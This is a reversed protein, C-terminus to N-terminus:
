NGVPEVAKIELPGHGANCAGCTQFTICSENGFMHCFDPVTVNGFGLASLDGAILQQLLAVTLTGPPLLVGAANFFNEVSGFNPCPAGILACIGGPLLLAIEADLAAVLADFEAPIHNVAQICADGNAIAEAEAAAQAAALNAYVGLIAGSAGDLVLYETIYPPASNGGMESFIFPTNDDSGNPDDPCDGGDNSIIPAEAECMPPAICASADVTVCYVESKDVCFEIGSAVLDIMQDGIVGTPDTITLIQNDIFDCIQTENFGFFQNLLDLFPALEVPTVGPCYGLDGICTTGALPIDVCLTNCLLNDLFSTVADLTGQTYALQYICVTEGDALASLDLTTSGAATVAVIDGNADVAIYNTVVMADIVGDGDSDFGGSAPGFLTNADVPIAADNCVETPADPLAEGALATCAGAVPPCTCTLTGSLDGSCPGADIASFDYALTSADACGPGLEATECADAFTIAGDGDIDFFAGAGDSAFGGAMPNCGDIVDEIVEFIPNIVVDFQLKPCGETNADSLYAGFTGDGDTDYDYSFPVVFFSVTIPACTANLFQGAAFNLDGCGGGPGAGGDSATGIYAIDPNGTAGGDIDAPIVTIGGPAMGPVGAPAYIYLDLDLSPGVGTGGGFDILNPSISCGENITFDIADGNCVDTPGTYNYVSACGSVPCDCTLTGSLDGSCTGVDLASFDYNLVAGNTCDATPSLQDTMCADAFTIAGDGDVDYFGGMGDAAFAGVIPDCGDTIDEIIEFIPDITVKVFDVPCDPLVTFNESDIPILGVSIEIPACTTNLFAFDLTFDTCGTTTGFIGQLNPDTADILDQTTFTTGAPACIPFGSVPDFYFVVGWGSNSLDSSVMCTPGFTIPLPAGNCSQTVSFDSVADCPPTGLEIIDPCIEAIFATGPACNNETFNYCVTYDTGVTLGSADASYGGAPQSVTVGLATVNTCTAAEFIDVTQTICSPDGALLFAPFAAADTGATYNTCVTHTAGPALTIPIGSDLVGDGDTDEAYTQCGSGDGGNFSATTGPGPYTGADPYYTNGCDMSIGGMLDACNDACPVPCIPIAVSLNTGDVCSFTADDRVNVVVNGAATPGTVTVMICVNGDTAGAVANATVVGGVEVDYAGGGDTVDFCVEFEADDGNCVAATNLTVNTIVCDTAATINYMWDTCENDFATIGFKPANNTENANCVVPNMIGSCENQDHVIDVGGGCPDSAAPTTTFATAGYHHGIGLAHLGEHALVASYAYQSVTNPACVGFNNMVFYPNCATQWSTGCDDLHSGGAYHGGIGLTGNCNADVDPIENFPDDFFIFMKNCNNGFGGACLLVADSADAAGAWTTANCNADVGTYSINIGPMCNMATLANQLDSIETTTTPDDQAGGAVCVTWNNTEYKTQNAGAPGFLTACQCPAANPCPGRELDGNTEDKPVTAPKDVSTYNELFLGAKNTDWYMNQNVIHDLHDIFTEKKYASRFGAHDFDQTNFMLQDFAQEHAFITEGDVTGEEYVGMSLLQSKYTGDGMKSVFVLYNTGIKFDADGSVVRYYGDYQNGWEALTINQNKVVDSGKIVELVQFENRFPNGDVHGLVTGYLIYDSTNALEGLNNPPFVLTAHSLLPFLITLYLIVIKKM